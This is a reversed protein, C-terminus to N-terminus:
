YAFECRLFPGHSLSDIRKFLAGDSAHDGTAVFWWGQLEYGGTVWLCAHGVSRSWSLGTQLNLTPIIGPGDVTDSMEPVSLKTVTGSPGPITAEGALGFSQRNSSALVGGDVRGVLALASQGLKWGGELGLHAGGALSHDSARQHVSLPLSLMVGPRTLSHAQIPFDDQVQFDAFLSALRAGVAWNWWGASDAQFTRSVYDLDLWQEDVRGHLSRSVPVGADFVHTTDALAAYLGPYAQGAILDNTERNGSSALSRYSVRLASGNLFHYGVTVEPSATWDLDLSHLQGVFAESQGALPSLLRTFSPKLVGVEVGAFWVPPAATLQEGEVETVPAQPGSGSEFAQEPSQLPLSSRVPPPTTAPTQAQITPNVWAFVLLCLVLFSRRSAFM